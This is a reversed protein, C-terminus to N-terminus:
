HGRLPAPRVGDTFLWEGNRLEFMWHRGPVDWRTVNRAECIELVSGAPIFRTSGRRPHPSNFALVQKEVMVAGPIKFRRDGDIFIGRAHARMWLERAPAHGPARLPRLFVVYFGFALASFM